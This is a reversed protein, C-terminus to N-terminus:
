SPLFVCFYIGGSNPIIRDGIASGWGVVPGFRYTAVFLLKRVFCGCCWLESWPRCCLYRIGYGASKRCPPNALPLIFLCWWCVISKHSFVGNADWPKEDKIWVICFHCLQHTYIQSVGFDTSDKEKFPQIVNGWIGELYKNTLDHWIASLHGNKAYTEGLSGGRLGRLCRGDDGASEDWTALFEGPLGIDQFQDPLHDQDWHECRKEWPWMWIHVFRLDWGQCLHWGQIGHTTSFMFTNFFCGEWEEM